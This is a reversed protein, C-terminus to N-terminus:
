HRAALLHKALVGDISLEDLAIGYLCRLKVRGEERAKLGKYMPMQLEHRSWPLSM